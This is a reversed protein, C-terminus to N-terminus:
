SFMGLPSSDFLHRQQAMPFLDVEDNFFHIFFLPTSPRDTGFTICLWSSHLGPQRDNAIEGPRFDYECALSQVQIVLHASKYVATIIEECLCVFCRFALSLLDFSIGHHRFIVSFHNLPLASTAIM